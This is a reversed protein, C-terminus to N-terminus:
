EGPKLAWPLTQLLKDRHSDDLLDIMDTFRPYTLYEDKATDVGSMKHWMEDTQKAFKEMKTELQDQNILGCTKSDSVWKEIETLNQSAHGNNWEAKAHYQEPPTSHKLAEILGGSQADALLRSHVGDDKHSPELEAVHNRFETNETM